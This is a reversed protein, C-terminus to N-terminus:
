IGIKIFKNGMVYMLRIQFDKEIFKEIFHKDTSKKLGELAQSSIKSHITDKIFSAQSSILLSGELDYLFINLQFILHM